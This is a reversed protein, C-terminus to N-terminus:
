NIELAVTTKQYTPVVKATGDYSITTGVANTEITEDLKVVRGENYAFLLTGTISVQGKILIGMRLDPIDNYFSLQPQAEIRIQVSDYGAYTVFGEVTYTYTFNLTDGNPFTHSKDVTWTSGTTVVTDPFELIGFSRFIDTSLSTQNQIGAATLLNSFDGLPTTETVEGKRTMKTNLIQGNVGLPYSIGNVMLSGNTFSTNIEMVDQADVNTVDRTLTLTVLQSAQPSPTSLTLGYTLVTGATHGYRLTVNQALLEGAMFLYLLMVLFAAVKPFRKYKM